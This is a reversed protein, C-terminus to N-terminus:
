VMAILRSSDSSIFSAGGSFSSAEGQEDNDEVGMGGDTVAILCDARTEDGATGRKFWSATADMGLVDNSADFIGAM